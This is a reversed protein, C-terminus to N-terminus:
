LVYWIIEKPPEMSAQKADRGPSEHKNTQSKINMANEKKYQKNCLYIISIHWKM